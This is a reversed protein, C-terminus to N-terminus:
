ELNNLDELFEGILQLSTQEGEDWEADEGREMYKQVSEPTNEYGDPPEDFGLDEWKDIGDPNIISDHQQKWKEILQKKDM